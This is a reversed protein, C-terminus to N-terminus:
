QALVEQVRETLGDATTLDDVAGVPQAGQLRLQVAELPIGGTPVIQAPEDFALLSALYCASGIHALFVKAIGRSAYELVETPNAATTDASQPSRRGKGLQEHGLREVGALTAISAEGRPTM